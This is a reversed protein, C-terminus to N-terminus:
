KAEMLSYVRNMIDRSIESLEESSYKRGGEVAPKFPKGYVVRVKSFLKYTGEVAVPLIPAASKVAIMGVGPKIKIEEARKGRTRTGEPLIGLIKGEELLKLSTKIATIDGTGRRVPFAGLHKLIYSVLPIDFLEEKAMYHILRKLKYGVFFMDMQGIHNSCLIVPGNQPVNQIGVLEVRYFISFYVRLLFKVFAEM